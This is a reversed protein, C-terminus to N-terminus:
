SGNNKATLIGYKGDFYVQTIKTIQDLAIIHDVFMGDKDTVLDTAKNIQSGKLCTQGLFNIVKTDYLYITKGSQRVRAFQMHQINTKM